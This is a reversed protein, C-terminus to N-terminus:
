VDAGPIAAEAYRRRPSSDGHATAPAHTFRRSQQQGAKQDNEDSIQAASEPASASNSM